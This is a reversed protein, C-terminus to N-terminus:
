EHPTVEFSAMHIFELRYMLARRKSIKLRSYIEQRNAKDLHEEIQLVWYGPYDANDRKGKGYREVALSLEHALFITCDDCCDEM